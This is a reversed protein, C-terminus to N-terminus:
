SKESGMEGAIGVTAFHIDVTDEIPSAYGGSMVVAVPLGAQGCAELVMRDRRELGEKSVALRGLRDGCFITATGIGSVEVRQRLLVHKEM